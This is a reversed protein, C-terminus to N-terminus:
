EVNIEMDKNSREEDASVTEVDWPSAIYFANNWMEYFKYYIKEWLGAGFPILTYALISPLLMLLYTQQQAAWTQSTKYIISYMLLSVTFWIVNWMLASGSYNPNSSFEIQSASVFVSFLVHFWLIIFLVDTQNSFVLYIPALIFFLIWNTLLLLWFTKTINYYRKGYFLNYLGAISINWIFTSLFGIFLLILPLLPNAKTALGTAAPQWLSSTFMWGIFTLVVFLLAAILWGIVLWVLTKWILQRGSINNPENLISKPAPTAANILQGIWTNQLNEM